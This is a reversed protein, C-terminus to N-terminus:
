SPKITVQLLGLKLFADVSAIFAQQETRQDGATRQHDPSPSALAEVFEEVSRNQVAHFLTYIARSMDFYTRAGVLAVNDEYALPLFAPNWSLDFRQNEGVATLSTAYPFIRGDYYDSYLVAYEEFGPWLDFPASHYRAYVEQLMPYFENEILHIVAEFSLGRTNHWDEHELGIVFDKNLAEPNIIIGLQEHTDYYATRLELGFPHVDFSNGPHDIINQQSIIFECTERASTEDEEPFGIISFLHFYIGADRCNRLIDPAADVQTGKDMHDITRQSGSEFGFFLKKMGMAALRECVQPTFGAELRAYGTFAYPEHPYADFADALRTLLRPSLAEDTIVFHRCHFRQSLRHVDNAILEPDRVRYAKQSIHNIYPIDCFKCRNFYCGKGTLIPLVPTPTLYQHLPLGTFDPTPLANVDEVHFATMRVQFGDYYLLNPAQSLDRGHQLQDCLALLATDGEYVVVANAFHEFFAPRQALQEAFKTYVAGGIVVFYGQSRLARALTLGPIIQQRNTITIGVLDPARAALDPFVHTEWYDAFLNADRNATVQLLDSLRQPAIDKVDYRIPLLNYDVGCPSAAAQLALSSIITERASNFANADYFRIPHRLTALAEVATEALMDSILVLRALPEDLDLHPGLREHLQRGAQLLQEPQLLAELSNLNLDILDVQEGAQRLSAALSPLALQPARPDSAPPYILTTRM